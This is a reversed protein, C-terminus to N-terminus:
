IEVPKSITYKLDELKVIVSYKKSLRDEYTIEIKAILDKLAKRSRNKTIIWRGTTDQVIGSHFPQELESPKPENPAEFLLDGSIKYELLRCCACKNNL